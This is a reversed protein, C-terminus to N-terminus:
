DRVVSFPLFACTSATKPATLLLVPTSIRARHTISVMFFNGQTKFPHSSIVLGEKKRERKGAHRGDEDQPHRSQSSRNGSAFLRSM